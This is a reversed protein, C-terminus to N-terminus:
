SPLFSMEISSVRSEATSGERTNLGSAERASTSVREFGYWEWPLDGVKNRCPVAGAQLLLSVIELKGCAVALHLPTCFDGGVVDNVLDATTYNGLCLTPDSSASTVM